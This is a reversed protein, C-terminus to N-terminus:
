NQVTPSVQHDTHPPLNPQREMITALFLKTFRRQNPPFENHINAYIAQGVVEALVLACFQNLQPHEPYHGVLEEVQKVAVAAEGEFTFPLQHKWHIADHWARFAYNIEPSGFITTESAGSWVTMPKDSSLLQNLEELSNPAQACAIFGEPWHIHALKLVIADFAPNHSRWATTQNHHNM